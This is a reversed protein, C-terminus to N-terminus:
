ATPNSARRERVAIILGALLTLAGLLLYIALHEWEAWIATPLRNTIGFFGEFVGIGGAGLAWYTLLRNRLRLGAVALGLGFILFPGAVFAAVYFPPLNALLGILAAIGFGPPRRMGRSAARRWFTLWLSAFAIALLAATGAGSSWGFALGFAWGGNGPLGPWILEAATSVAIAIGLVLLTLSTERPDRYIPRSAAPLDHQDGATASASM